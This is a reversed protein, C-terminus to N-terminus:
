SRRQRLESWALRMAIVRGDRWLAIAETGTPRRLMEDSGMISFEGCRICMTADGPKMRPEVAPAPERVVASSVDHEAGCYPCLSFNPRTM